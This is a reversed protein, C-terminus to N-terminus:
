VNAERYEIDDIWVEGCNGFNIKIVEYYDQDATIDFEYQTWVNSVTFPNGNFAQQPWNNNEDNKQLLVKIQGNGSDGNKKRGSSSSMDKEKLQLIVALVTNWRSTGVM